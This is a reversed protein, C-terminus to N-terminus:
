ETEYYAKKFEAEVDIYEGAMLRPIVSLLFGRFFQEHEKKQMQLAELAHHELVLQSDMAYAGFPAANGNIFEKATM